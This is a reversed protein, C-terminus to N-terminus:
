LLVDRLGNVRTLIPQVRARFPAQRAPEVLPVDALRLRFFRAVRRHYTDRAVSISGNHKAKPIAWLRVSNSMSNRLARVVSVPIHSDHQGHIMMVPQRIRRAAQDVNVFRCNRRQQVVFRALASTSRLAFDPLWSLIIPHALYIKMFRRMYYIQMRETPVTGDIVLSRVRHDDAAVCLAVTGGKSVGFLGVGRPDADSRSSLYNIAARADATDYTTVWPMPEYDAICDSSGHCRFDFTFIDFGRQRLDETYPIASWREANLEHFFAIVGQRQAASTPLYTGKLRKGDETFFEVTQGKDLPEHWRAPLWLTEGFVRAAIPVYLVWAVIHGVLIFLVLGALFWGIYLVVTM